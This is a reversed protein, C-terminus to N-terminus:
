SLSRWLSDFVVQQTRAIAQDDVIIGFLKKRADLGVFAMCDAYIFTYMPASEELSLWKREDLGHTTGGAGLAIAKVHIGLAKRRANYRPWAAGILDRVGASSYVRYSKGRAAKTKLLVDELITRIGENGEYYRVSPRYEAVSMQKRFTPIIDDLEQRAQRVLGEQREALTRWASPDEAAFYRHSKGDLSTVLGASKLRKLADYTTGRKLQAEEAIKRLPASGLRLVVDYVILDKETLGLLGLTQANIM